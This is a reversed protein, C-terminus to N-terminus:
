LTFKKTTGDAKEIEIDIFHHKKKSKDHKKFENRLNNKIKKIGAKWRALTERPSEIDLEIVVHNNKSEHKFRKLTYM